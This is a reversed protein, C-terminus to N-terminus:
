DRAVSRLRDAPIWGEREGDLEVRVWVGRRELLRAVEGALPAAGREAGLAPLARLPTPQMVVALDHARATHELVSAVVALVLSPVLVLAAYRARGGRRVAIFAWAWGSLWCILALGQIITPELPWVRAAGRPQPARVRALLERTMHDRPDLRLAKQWGLVATATDAAAWAASGLNAWVAPDRRATTAARAFADRAVAYDRGVYATHGESFAGLTAPNDQPVPACAAVLMTSLVLLPVLHQRAEKEIAALLSTMHEHVVPMADRRAPPAFSQADCADRLQEVALATAPTVGELRLAAALAGPTTHQAVEVGTRTRLGRELLARPSAPGTASAVAARHALVRPGFRQVLWPLPALLAVGLWWVAGPLVTRAPGALAPRLPIVAVDRLAAGRPPVAVLTGPRVRLVVSETRATTYARRDPDFFSYGLPAVRQTGPERPTILWSFEKVGGLRLPAAELVVSEGQPVVDAWPIEVVPRPLLTPNGEGELRLTLVAPEGVRPDRRDVRASARWRGVAGLWDAPRGRSPPDIAFFSTAASRLVREDERSFFSTSQPLVYSLRAAPIQYRGPTLVFLARRFTHVEVADAPDATRSIPLEYALTARPEPPVFEPNRRLRQRIDAPIRVTLVYTAQQGVYLTDPTVHATFGVREVDQALAPAGSVLACM